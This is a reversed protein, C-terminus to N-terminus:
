NCKLVFWRECLGNLTGLVTVYKTVNLWRCYKSLVIDQWKEGKKNVKKDALRYYESAIQENIKFLLLLEM